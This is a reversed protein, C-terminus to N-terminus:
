FIYRGLGRRLMVSRKFKKAMHWGQTITKAIRKNFINKM